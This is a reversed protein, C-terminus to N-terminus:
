ANGKTAWSRGFLENGGSSLHIVATDNIIQSVLSSYAREKDFAIFIQKDSEMLLRMIGDVPEDGMNKFIGSDEGLVPLKTTQLVALDLIVMSKYATGQGGDRPTTFVYKKNSDFRITPAVRPTEYVRDNLRTLQGNIVAEIERLVDVESKEVVKTADSVEQKLKQSTEFAENQQKLATIRRNLESYEQLFDKPLEAMDGLNNIRQQLTHIEATIEKILLQLREAEESLEGDLIERMRHHFGEVEEIHRIDANPFFESLRQLNSETSIFHDERNQTAIRYQSALEGYQRKKLRLQSRAESLDDKRQLESELVDQDAKRKLSDREKELNAIEIENKDHQKQTRIATPVLEYKRANKFAEQKDKATKEEAKAAEIFRYRDYLKEIEAIAKEQSPQGNNLPNEITDNHKGFVRFFRSVASRFTINPLDMGYMEMLHETFAKLKISKVVKYRGDTKECVSVDNPTSVKRSYWEMVDGFQFGFNIRHDGIYQKVDSEAYTKGGFCFDVILLFTSKGISNDANAGGVVTNLGEHLEIPGRPEGNSIFQDCQIEILM